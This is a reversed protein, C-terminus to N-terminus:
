LEFDRNVPEKGNFFFAQGEYRPTTWAIQEFKNAQQGAVDALAQLANSLPRAAL